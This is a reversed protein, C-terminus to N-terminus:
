FPSRTDSTIAPLHLSLRTALRLPPSASQWLAQSSPEPVFGWNRGLPCLVATFLCLSGLTGGVSCPSACCCGGPQEWSVFVVSSASGHWEPWQLEAVCGAAGPRCCHLGANPCQALVCVSCADSPTPPLQGCLQVRIHGPAACSCNLRCGATWVTGCTMPHAPASGTLMCWIPRCCCRCPCLFAYALLVCVQRYLTCHHVAAPLHRGIAHAGLQQHLVCCMVHHM